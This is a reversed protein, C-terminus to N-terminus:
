KCLSLHQQQTSGCASAMTIKLELKAAAFRTIVGLLEWRKRQAICRIKVTVHELPFNRLPITGARNKSFRRCAAAKCLSLHQQQTSRCASAMTIKLELKAAAFRTIVGLLEWRKRQAICRIKVTGM